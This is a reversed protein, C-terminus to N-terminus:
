DQPDCATVLLVTTFQVVSSTLIVKLKLKDTSFNVKVFDLIGQSMLLHYNLYPGTEQGAECEVAPAQAQCAGESYVWVALLGLEPTELNHEDVSL